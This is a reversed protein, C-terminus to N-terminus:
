DAEFVLKRNYFVETRGTAFRMCDGFITKSQCRIEIDAMLNKSQHTHEDDRRDRLWSIARIRFFGACAIHNRM